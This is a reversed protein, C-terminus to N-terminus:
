PLASCTDPNNSEDESESHIKEVVPVGYYMSAVYLPIGSHRIDNIRQEMEDLYRQHEKELFTDRDNRSKRPM